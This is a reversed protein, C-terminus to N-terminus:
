RSVAARAARLLARAMWAVARAAAWAAAMAAGDTLLKNVLIANSDAAAACALAAAVSTFARTANPRGPPDGSRDLVRDM